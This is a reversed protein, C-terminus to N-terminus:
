RVEEPWLYAAHLTLETHLTGIEKGDRYATVTVTCDVDGFTPAELLELASVSKGAALEFADTILANDSNRRIEVTYSDSKSNNIFEAKVSTEGVLAYLHAPATFAIQNDDVIANLQRLRDDIGKCSMQNRFDSLIVVTLFALRCELFPQLLLFVALIGLVVFLSGLNKYGQGEKETKVDSDFKM